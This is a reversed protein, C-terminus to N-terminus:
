ITAISAAHTLVRALQRRVAGLGAAQHLDNFDTHGVAREAGFVPFVVLVRDYARAVEHAKRRGVNDPKGAQDTTRWDDDACIVIPCTPHIERVIRVVEALNGADLAVFVPARRELAMRISLGTAYGECVLVPEYAVVLGLRVACGPKDFAKTFVKEPLAAGTRTDTRPGPYIRQIGRLAQERGLDYRILPILISGDPMYRCAEGDVGKRELYASRGTTAGRRWLEGAGLAAEEAERARQQRARIEAQAREDRLRDKEADSLPKWNVEVRAWEGTKYSGFSGVIYAGGADPRFTYLRYWWKGKQGCTRKRPTDVLLPLDRAQVFQVGFSEMQEIVSHYNDM